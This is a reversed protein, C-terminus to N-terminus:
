GVRSALSWLIKNRKVSFHTVVSGVRFGEVGLSNTKNWDLATVRWLQLQFIALEKTEVRVTRTCVMKNRTKKHGKREARNNEHATSANIPVGNQAVYTSKTYIYVISNVRECVFVNTPKNTAIKFAFLM